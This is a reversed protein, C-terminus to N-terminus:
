QGDGKPGRGYNGLLGTRWEPVLHDFPFLPSSGGDVLEEIPKAWLQDLPERFREYDADNRLAIVAVDNSKECYICWAGADSACAYRDVRYLWANQPGGSLLAKGYEERTTSRDVYIAAIRDFALVPSMDLNVLCSVTGGEIRMLGGVADIFHEGFIRDSECFLFRRWAGTFVFGPLLADFDIAEDINVFAALQARKDMTAM